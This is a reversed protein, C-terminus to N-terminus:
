VEFELTEDAGIIGYVYADDILEKDTAERRYYDRIYLYAAVPDYYFQELDEHSMANTRRDALIHAINEYSIKM